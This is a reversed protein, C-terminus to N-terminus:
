LLHRPFHPCSYLYDNVKTGDLRYITHVRQWLLWLLFNLLTSSLCTLNHLTLMSGRASRFCATTTPFLHMGPGAKINRRSQPLSALNVIPRGLSPQFFEMCTRFSGM